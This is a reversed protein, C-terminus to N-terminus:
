KVKKKEENFICNYTKQISKGDCASMFKKMFKKRKTNMMDEKKIHTILEDCNVAVNGYTYEEFPYYMGRGNAYEDLDYAFYVIPKNLLAYDFIVSSYDTILVDTLLLLENIDRFESFEHYFDKYESLDPLDVQGNTINNYLAPHWKFIFIYDKKLEKYIKSFNLKSFDYNAGGASVNKYPAGRYTPAFLIVKKNKLFPYKEYLETKTKIIYKKDFFMDTRLFGTAFVKDISIGFAEAYNEKVGEGSVIAHTYKKYGPHIAKLDGGNNVHRSYGFKKFAGPGHWLQVIKQSKKFKVYSTIQVLDELFIYKSTVLNFITNIKESFTRKTRRDHKLIVTKKYDDGIYDYMFKLNGGIEDRVDSIFLVKSKDVKSVIGIGFSILYTMVAKIGKKLKKLKKKIKM